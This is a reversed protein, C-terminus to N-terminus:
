ESVRSSNCDAKRASSFFRPMMGVDVEALAEDDDDEAAAEDLQGCCADTLSLFHSTREKM